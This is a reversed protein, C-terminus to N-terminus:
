LDDTSLLPPLDDEDPIQRKTFRSTFLPEPEQDDKNFFGKKTNQIPFNKTVEEEM